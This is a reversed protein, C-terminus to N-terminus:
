PKQAGEPQPQHVLKREIGDQVRFSIRLLSVLMRRWSTRMQHRIRETVRKMKM